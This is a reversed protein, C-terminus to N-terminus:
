GVAGGAQVQTADSEWSTPALLISGGGLGNSTSGVAQTNWEPTSSQMPAVAYDGSLINQGTIDVHAFVGLVYSSSRATPVNQDALPAVSTDDAVVGVEAETFVTHAPLEVNQVETVYSPNTLDEAFYLMKPAHHGVQPTYHLAVEATNGVPIDSLLTIEAGPNIGNLCPDNSTAAAGFAGTFAEVNYVPQGDVVGQYIDAIQAAEGTSQNCLGVAIGNTSSPDFQEFSHPTGIYSTVQTFSEGFGSAKWGAVGSDSKETFVVSKSVVNPHTTASAAGVGAVAFSGLAAAAVATTFIKRRLM